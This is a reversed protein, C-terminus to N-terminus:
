ETHRLVVVCEEDKYIPLYGKIVKRMEPFPINFEMKEGNSVYTQLKYLLEKIAPYESSINNQKLQHIVNLTEFQREQKSRKRNEDNLAIYQQKRQIKKEQQKKKYDPDKKNVM